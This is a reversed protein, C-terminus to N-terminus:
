GGHKKALAIGQEHLRRAVAGPDNEAGELKAKNARAQDAGSSDPAVEKDATNREM